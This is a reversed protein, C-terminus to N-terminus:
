QQPVPKPAVSVWILRTLYLGAGLAIAGGCMQITPYDCTLVILGCFVLGIVALGREAPRAGRARLLSVCSLAYVLCSLLVAILIITNFQKAVNPSLTLLVAGLMLVLTIALNLRPPKAPDRRLFFRPFM